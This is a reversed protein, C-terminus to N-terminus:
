DSFPVQHYGRHTELAARMLDPNQLQVPIGAQIAPNRRKSHQTQLNGKNM